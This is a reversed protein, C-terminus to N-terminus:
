PRSRSVSRHDPDLYRRVPVAADVLIALAVSPILAILALFLSGPLTIRTM